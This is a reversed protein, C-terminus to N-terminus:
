GGAAMATPTSAPQINQNMRFLNTPDYQHKLRALRAYNEGYAARVLAEGEEGLGAFNVYLGGTSYPQMAAIQARSWAIIADSQTPDDWVSDISLLYPTQRGRFATADPAVSRIAGGYHWLGILIAPEPRSATSVILANIVTDDLHTLETSKFYYYREGKPFFFDFMGQAATFPMRSSLDLVPTALQRLPALVREGEDAPGAYVAAVVVIPKNWLEQPFGDIAPISWFILNSSVENPADDIFDRWVPVLKQADELAYMAGVLMIEPGLSHLRYEFSTVIGFNGGGGRIGWFLESNESASAHVLEGGATVLDVSLLNDCALGHKRRLWGLGGGLTLGAIGTTSVVGGPAVLGFLQTERDLDGWTVGPQARATRAQPDVHIGKMLSLDIMLGGDCVAAGSVNHGGGRVSVLLHQTRAFNVANIVDATGTCRAILAPRRDILGNWVQRVENYSDDAPTLLPGRLTQRLSEVAESALKGQAGDLTIVHLDTM